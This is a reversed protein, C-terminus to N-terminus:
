PLKVVAATLLKWVACPILATPTTPGSVRATIFFALQEFVTILWAVAMSAARAAVGVIAAVGTTGVGVGALSRNAAGAAPETKLVCM